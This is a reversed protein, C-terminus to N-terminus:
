TFNTGADSDIQKSFGYEAFIMKVTQVLDNTALSGVMKMIPFMSYHDVISLLAKNNVMYIDAGLVEWPRCPIEYPLVREHPQMQQYKLYTTCQKPTNEIDANMNPWYMFERVILRKKEIGM